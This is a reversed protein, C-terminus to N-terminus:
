SWLGKETLLRKYEAKVRSFVLQEDFREVAINRGSEGMRKRKESDSLLECIAGALAQPNGFPVLLGNRGHEVAARNGKVDTAVIPVQMASAEMLVRPFGERPSPLVLTNMLAYLGPLEQNSRWGLFLCHKWVGYEKAVEPKVADPRGPDSGGVILFRVNPFNIAVHGAAALFDLFGKSKGALRGVFGVIPVKESLGLKEYQATLSVENLQSIDFREIDIGNGLFSIKDPKCIRWKKALSIDEKNQSLIADSCWAAIKEVLVYLFQKVLPLNGYFRFGHVTRVAIPVCALKAAILAPFASKINHTHVITFRKRRFLRYLAWLSRVDALMSIARTMPVEFHSIGVAELEQVYAGTASVGSVEYGAEQISVMQDLLLSRLGLDITAVHAIRVKNDLLYENSHNDM